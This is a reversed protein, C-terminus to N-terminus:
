AAELRALDVCAANLGDCLDEYDALTALYRTMGDEYRQSNESEDAADRHTELWAWQRRLLDEADAIEKARKDAIQRAASLLTARAGSGAPWARARKVAEILTDAM